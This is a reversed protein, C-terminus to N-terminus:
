VFMVRGFVRQVQKVRKFVLEVDGDVTAGWRSEVTEWCLGIFSTMTDNKFIHVTLMIDRRGEGVCIRERSSKKYVATDNEGWGSGSLTQKM